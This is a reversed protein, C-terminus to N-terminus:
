NRNNKKELLLRCVLNSQSQLESTHEESRRVQTGGELAAPKEGAIRPHDFALLVSARLSAARELEGLASCQVCQHPHPGARAHPWIPLADPLPLPSFEPPAPDMLFFFFCLSSACIVNLFFPRSCAILSCM